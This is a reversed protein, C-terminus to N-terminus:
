IFPGSRFETPVLPTVFGNGLDGLPDNSLIADDYGHNAVPDSESHAEDAAPDSPESTSSSEGAIGRTGSPDSISASM